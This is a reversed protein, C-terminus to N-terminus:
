RKRHSSPFRMLKEDKQEFCIQKRRLPKIQDAHGPKDRISAFEMLRFGLPLGPPFIVPLWLQVPGCTGSGFVLEAHKDIASSKQVHFINPMWPPLV